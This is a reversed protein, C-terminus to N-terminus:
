LKRFFEVSGAKYDPCSNVRAAFAAFRHRAKAGSAKKGFWAAAAAVFLKVGGAMM